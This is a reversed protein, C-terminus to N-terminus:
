KKIHEIERATKQEKVVANELRIDLVELEKEFTRKKRGCGAPARCLFPFSYLGHYRLAGLSGGSLFYLLTFFLVPLSLFLIYFKKM